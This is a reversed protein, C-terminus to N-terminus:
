ANGNCKELKAMLEHVFANGEDQDPIIIDLSIKGELVIQIYFPISHPEYLKFYVIKNIPIYCSMGKDRYKIYSM